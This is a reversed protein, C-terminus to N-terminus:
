LTWPSRMPRSVMHRAKQSGGVLQQKKPDWTVKEGTRVAIDCLHSMIDSRMADEVHSSTQGGERIADVFNQIHNAANMGHNNGPLEADILTTPNARISSRTLELSGESGIFKTSDSGPVFTIKVGDAMTFTMDWNIVTDYLGETPVLGTGEVSYPGALDGRYCWVLIDLPHAGWGALYGISQDYIWYTGNPKCRDSTYPVEPAPGLWMNYDFGPPVPKPETSGGQGGNPAKVEIARLEGLKGDLVLQRGFKQHAAERQQTGYQFVQKEAAFVKRCVITQEITLGLPKEVYAGKGARAAMIAVPVHWHDPTAVIVGDIDDRSLIDRFDTYAKGKTAQAATDRNQQYCDAVAVSQMGKVHQLAANMLFRGRGGTGIHGITIRESPAPTDDKGLASGPIITPVAFGAAAACGAKLVDRRSPRQYKM